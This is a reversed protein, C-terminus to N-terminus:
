SITCIINNQILVVRRSRRVVSPTRHTDDEITNFELNLETRDRLEKAKQREKLYQLSIDSQVDNCRCRMEPFSEDPSFPQLCSACSGQSRTLGNSSVSPTRESGKSM